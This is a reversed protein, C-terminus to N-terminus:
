RSRGEIPNDGADPFSSLASLRHAASITVDRLFQQHANTARASPFGVCLAAITVDDVNTIPAAVGHVGIVEEERNTAYGDRRIRAIEALVSAEDPLTHSTFTAIGKALVARIEEDSRGALLVKGAATGHFTGPANQDGGRGIGPNVSLTLPSRLVIVDVRHWHRLVSLHVTEETQEWLERAIPAAVSALDLHSLYVRGLVLMRPGIRYNRSQEDQEAFGHSLLSALLTHATSPNLDVAAALHRLPAGAPGVTALADLLAAARDIAQIPSRPPAEVDDAPKASRSRRVRASPGDAGKAAGM